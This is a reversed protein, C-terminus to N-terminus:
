KVLMHIPKWLAAEAAEMVSESFTPHPRIAKAFEELTLKNRVAITAEGILESVHPGVMQVGLVREDDESAVVRVFGQTKEEAIARGLAQFGFRGVKVRIGRSEAESRTLGVFAIEPDTFIASPIADEMVSEKGAINEAAVIGQASARHALFPPGIADGVAYVGEINTSMYEDVKIFGKEDTEVGIDKHGLGEPPGRKGVAVLAYDAEVEAEGEPTEVKARVVGGKVESSIVKSRVHVVAGLQKLTRQVPVVLDKEIGPLLQDMVEIITIRTGLKAFVTGIELGSVGGGVILLRRPVDRVELIQTSGLIKKGDRPIAPLDIHEGGVAIIINEAKVRRESGDKGRIEITLNERLRAEGEVVKVGYGRLLYGVGDSLRRTVRARYEQLVGWDVGLSESKIWPAKSAEWFIDVGRILIKSPICGRNLCEGGLRDKEILLTKIGLQGLRIGAVYGGPGGGIVVAEYEEVYM